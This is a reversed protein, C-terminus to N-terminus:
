EEEDTTEEKEEKSDDVFQGLTTNKKITNYSIPKSKQQMLNGRKSQEEQRLNKISKLFYM